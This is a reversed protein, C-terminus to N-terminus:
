PRATIFILSTGGGPQSQIEFRASMKGARARLNKLGNGGAVRGPIFGVGNDRITFRWEGPLDEVQLEVRTAQAHRAINTLAEKFLLFLNQRYELPLKRSLDVGECRLQYEVGRLATGAFDKTRLMLDQLSDFAPNIFWIIDRISNSTQLAIRNIEKVDQREESGLNPSQALLRSLLTISWLSSGLDDHLDSAIRVRLTELDRRRVQRLRYWGAVLLVTAGAVAVRFWNTEWWFPLVRVALTAGKANWFGDNNRAVVQFTYDGAPLRPYRAIRNPTVESWERDVGELRYRFAVKGPAAFSLATYGFQLSEKGPPVRLPVALPVPENEILVQELLVPPPETNWPLDRAVPVVLGQSTTFWVGGGAGRGGRSPAAPLCQLGPLGDERGYAVADLIEAQGEAYANLQAQSVRLIASSYGVWLNGAGDSRLQWVADAPLGSKGTYTAVRGAKVRCLGRATGVWLVGGPGCHLARIEGNPLNEVGLDAVFEGRHWQFLGDGSTGIWLRGEPDMVLAGAFNGTFGWPTNFRKVVGDQLHNLGGNRTAIWLGGQGDALLAEITNGSLGDRETFQRVRGDRILFLGNGATGIWLDGGETLSATRLALGSPLPLRARLVFQGGQLRRWGGDATVCELEGAPSEFVCPAPVGEPGEAFPICRLQRRKLRHLGDRDTGVWISGERDEHLAAVASSFGAVRQVEAAGSGPRVLFLDGEASGIWIEGRKTEILARARGSWIRVPPGPSRVMAGSFRWVGQEGAMWLRGDQDELMRYIAGSMEPWYGAQWSALRGGIWRCLGKASAILLPSNRPQCIAGVQDDPLGDTQFFTTWENGVRRNLGSPTGVWLNKEADLGLCLIANASLGEATTYTTFRGGRHSVLGGRDTGIWLVGQADEQLCLIRSSRLEANELARFTVFRVGDFRALGNSTGVWLYGDETQMLTTVSHHPLGADSQWTDVVWDSQNTEAQGLAATLLGWFM